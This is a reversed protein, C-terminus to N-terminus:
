VPFIRGYVLPGITRHEGLGFSLRNSAEISM